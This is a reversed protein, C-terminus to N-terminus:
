PRTELLTLLAVANLEYERAVAPRPFTAHDREHRAWAKQQRILAEVRKRAEKPSM